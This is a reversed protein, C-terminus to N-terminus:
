FATLTSRLTCRGSISQASGCSAGALGWPRERYMEPSAKLNAEAAELSTLFVLARALPMPDVIRALDEKALDTWRLNV